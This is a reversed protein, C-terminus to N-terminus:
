RGLVKCSHDLLEEAHGGESNVLIALRQKNKVGPLGVVAISQQAMDARAGPIEDAVMKFLNQDLEAVDVSKVQYQDAWPGLDLASWQSSIHGAKAILNQRLWPSVCDVHIHLQDQTRQSKSNVAMGIDDWKLPRGAAAAVRGRESWGISWLAPAKDQLLAPSEIGRIRRTPVVLLRTQDLPARLVVFGRQTDVGLCPFPHNLTRQMPLCLDNVVHWLGDGDDGGSAASALLLSVGSVGFVGLM